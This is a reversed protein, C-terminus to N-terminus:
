ATQTLQFEAMRVEQTRVLMQLYFQNNLSHNCFSIGDKNCVHVIAANLSLLVFLLM